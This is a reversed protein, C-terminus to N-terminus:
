RGYSLQYGLSFLSPYIALRTGITRSIAQILNDGDGFKRNEVDRVLMVFHCRLFNRLGIWSDFMM